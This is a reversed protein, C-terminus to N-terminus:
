LQVQQGNCRRYLAIFLIVSLLDDMLYRGVGGTERCQDHGQRNGQPVDTVARRPSWGVAGGGTGDRRVLEVLECGLVGGTCLGTLVHRVVRLCM